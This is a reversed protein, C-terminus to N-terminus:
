LVWVQTFTEATFYWNPNEPRGPINTEVSISFYFFVPHASGSYTQKLYPMAHNELEWALLHDLCLNHVCCMANCCQCGMRTAHKLHMHVTTGRMTRTCGGASYPRTIRCEEPSKNVDELLNIFYTFFLEECTKTYDIGINLWRHRITCHSTSIPLALIYQRDSYM